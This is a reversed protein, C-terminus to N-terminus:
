VIAPLSINSYHPPAGGNVQRAKRRAYIFAPTSRSDKEQDVQIGRDNCRNWAGPRREGRNQENWQRHSSSSDVDLFFHPPAPGEVSPQMVYGTYVPVLQMPLSLIAAALFIWFSIGCSAFVATALVTLRSPATAYSSSVWFGGKRTVYALRGYNLNKTELKAGRASCAYKFTLFNAIEGLIIGTAVIAFAEPLDWTIGVLTAILEQGFLSRRNLQRRHNLEMCFTISRQHPVPTRSINRGYDESQGNKLKASDDFTSVSSQSNGLHNGYVPHPALITSM